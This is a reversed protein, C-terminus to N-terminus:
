DGLKILLYEIFPAVFAIISVLFIIFCLDGIFGDIWDNHYKNYKKSLYNSEIFSCTMVIIMFIWYFNPIMGRELLSKM